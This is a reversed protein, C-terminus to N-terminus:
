TEEFLKSFVLFSFSFFVFLFLFLRRFRATTWAEFV